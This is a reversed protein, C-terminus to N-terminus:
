DLKISFTSGLFQIFSDILSEINYCQMKAKLIEEGMVTSQMSVLGLFEEM